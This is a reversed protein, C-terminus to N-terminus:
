LCEIKDEFGMGAEVVSDDNLRERHECYVMLYKFNAVRLLFGLRTVSPGIAWSVLSASYRASSVRHETSGQYQIVLYTKIDSGTRPLIRKSSQGWMSVRQRAVNEELRM